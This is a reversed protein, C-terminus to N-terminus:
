GIMVGERIRPDVFAQVIDLVLIIGLVFLISYVGFGLLLPTDPVATLSMILESIGKLNFTQEIVMVGTFLSAAGIASSTFAPSLINKFIHGWLLRNAPIGRSKAALIYQEHSQEITSVRVVRGLTAWQILSLSVVPMILHRLGDLFVYLNGNLLADITILETYTKYGDSRMFGLAESGIRELPFIRLWVYFIAMMLIALIFTPTSSFVFSFFQFGSDTKSGKRAGSIAGSVMGLPIFFLLSYLTLEITVPARRNLMDLVDEQLFGSWGWDGRRLSDVWYFYQVPFPDRLHKDEIIRAVMRRVGEISMRSANRPLYLTAREEPSTFMAIGYLMSTIVVVSLFIGLIRRILFILFPPM